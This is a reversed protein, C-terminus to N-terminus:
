LNTDDHLYTFVFIHTYTVISPYTNQHTPRNIECVHQDQNRQSHKHTRTDIKIHVVEPVCAHAHTHLHLILLPHSLGM